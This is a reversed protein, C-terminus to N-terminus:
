SSTVTSAASAVPRRGQRIQAPQAVALRVRDLRRREARAYARVDANEGVSWGVLGLLLAGLAGALAFGGESARAPARTLAVRAVPAAVPQAAPAPPAVVAPAPQPGSVLAPPMVPPVVGPLAPAAAVGPAEPVGPDVPAVPEDVVAVPDPATLTATVAGPGQFVLQFPLVTPLAAAPDPRVVIGNNTGNNTGNNAGTLWTAALRTLDFRVAGDKAVGVVPASCDEAPEDAPDVGSGPVIRGKLPCAVVPATSADQDVSPDLPLVLSLGTATTGAPVASLDLHLYTAKAPAGPQGDYQVALDGAPVNSPELGTLTRWTWASSDVLLDTTAAHAPTTLVLPLLAAALVGARRM